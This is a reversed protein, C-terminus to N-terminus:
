QEGPRNEAPTEELGSAPGTFTNDGWAGGTETEHLYPHGTPKACRWWRPANVGRPAAGCLGRRAMSRRDRWAALDARLHDALESLDTRLDARLYRLDATVDARLTGIDERIQRLDARVVELLDRATKTSNM